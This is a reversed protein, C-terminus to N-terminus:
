MEFKGTGIAYRRVGDAGVFFKATPHQASIQSEGYPTVSEVSVPTKWGKVAYLGDEEIEWLSGIVPIEQTYFGGCFSAKRTETRNTM